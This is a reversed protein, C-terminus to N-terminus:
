LFKCNQLFVGALSEKKVSSSRLFLELLCCSVTVLIKGQIEPVFDKLATVKESFSEEVTKKFLLTCSVTPFLHVIADGILVSVALGILFMILFQFWKKKSFPIAILGVLSSLCIISISVM